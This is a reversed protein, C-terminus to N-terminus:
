AASSAQNLTFSILVFDLGLVPYIALEISATNGSVTVVFSSTDYGLPSGSSPQTIQQSLLEALRSTIRSKIASANAISTKSGVFALETDNRIYKAAYYVAQVVSGRNYVFNADAGYTTNDVVLRQGGNAPELFSVGAQIAADFDILANFDGAPIGTSTNVYHGVGQVRFYKYTLPEGISVGLRAGAMMAAMIHPQSWTLTGSSNPVLVDQMCLQINAQGLAAAQSYAAAKTSVRFGVVGQAEKRNKINARLTLNSALATHVSEVDYASSADTLGATIDASADQSILPVIVDMSYGLGATMANSFDSTASSGKAGSSLNVAPSLSDPLGKTATMTASILASAAVTQAFAYADMKMRAPKNTSSSFAGVTTIDLCTSPYSNYISPLTVTWGALNGIATALNILLPYQSLSLTYSTSGTATLICSTSTIQVTAATCSSSNDRGISIAINGGIANAETINGTPQNITLTSTQEASAYGFQGLTLSLKALATCNMIEISSGYGDRNHNASTNKTITLVGASHSATVSTIAANIQTVVADADAPTSFTCTAEAAAGNLRLILTLGNMSTVDIAGSATVFPSTEASLVAKATIQNGSVGYLLAKITAYSSALALSAQVSANTKYIAITSPGSSGQLNLPALCNKVADVIPGSQYTNLISSYQQASFFTIGATAGGEGSDAEGILFITGTSINNAGTNPNVTSRSYSGPHFIQNGSLTASLAM